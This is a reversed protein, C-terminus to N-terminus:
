RSAFKLWGGVMKGIQQLLGEITVYQKANIAGTEKALRIFVKLMDLEISVQQLPERQKAGFYHRVTISNRLLALASRQCEMWLTYRKVKPIKLAYTDLLKCLAYIRDFLPVDCPVSQHM